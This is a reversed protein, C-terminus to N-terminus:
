KGAQVPPVYLLFIGTQDPYPLTVGGSSKAFYSYISPQVGALTALDAVQYHGIHALLAAKTLADSQSGLLDILGIRLAETGPWIRGTLIVEPGATLHAGRGLVVAQYFGQKIMEMERQFSDRPEGWLKYPGTSILGEYITPSDPLNGLM